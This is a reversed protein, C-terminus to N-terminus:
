KNLGAQKEWVSLIASFRKSSEEEIALHKEMRKQQQEVVDLQHNARAVQNNYADIQQKAQADQSSGSSPQPPNTIPRVVGLWVGWFIVTFCVSKLCFILIPKILM